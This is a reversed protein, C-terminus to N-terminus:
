KTWHWHLEFTREAYGKRKIAASFRDPLKVSGEPGDIVLSAAALQKDGSTSAHCGVTVPM